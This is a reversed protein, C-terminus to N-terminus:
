GIGELRRHKMLSCHPKKLMNDLPIKLIFFRAALWSTRRQLPFKNYQCPGYGLEKEQFKM